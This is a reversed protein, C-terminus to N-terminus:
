RPPYLGRVFDLVDSTMDNLEMAELEETSGEKCDKVTNMALTNLSKAADLLENLRKVNM